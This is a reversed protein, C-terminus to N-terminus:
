EKMKLDLQGLVADAAQEPTMVGTDCKEFAEQIMSLSVYDTVIPEDLSKLYKTLSANETTNPWREEFFDGEDNNRSYVAFYELDVNHSRYLRFFFDYAGNNVPFGDYNEIKQSDATLASALFHLAEERNKGAETVALSCVPVFSRNDDNMGLRYEIGSQNVDSTSLLINYENDFGNVTGAALGNKDILYSYYTETFEYENPIIPFSPFGITMGNQRDIDNKAITECDSIFSILKERSLNKMLENGEYIMGLKVYAEPDWINLISYVPDEDERIRKVEEALDHFSKISGIKKKDAAVAPVRFKCSVSYIKDDIRNWLATNEYLGEEPMWVDQYKSLDCLMNRENLNQIDMGDIMIIDPADGSLMRTTFEKMADSYSTGNRRGYQYSVKINRNASAFDGVIQSLTDNKDLSYIKLESTIESVMDPDYTYKLIKGTESSVIIAGNECRYISKAHFSPNGITNVVGDIIQEMQNGDPMFRFIGDECCIYVSGNDGECLQFSDFSSTEDQRGRFFESLYKPVNKEKGEKIDYIHTNDKDAAILLDNVVAMCASPVVSIVPTLAGTTLSVESIGDKDAVFLRGDKSFEAYMLNDSDLRRVVGSDTRFEYCTRENDWCAYIVAHDSAALVGTIHSSSGNHSHAGTSNDEEIGALLKKGEREVVTVDNNFSYFMETEGEYFYPEGGIEFFDSMSAYIYSNYPFMVEQECYGGRVSLTEAVAGSSCGTLTSILLMSATIFSAKKM